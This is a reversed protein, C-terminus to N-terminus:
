TNGPAHKEPRQAQPRGGLMEQRIKRSLSWLKMHRWAWMGWLVVSGALLLGALPTLWVRESQVAYGSAFLIAGTIGAILAGLKTPQIPIVPVLRLKARLAQWRGAVAGTRPQDYLAALIVMDLRVQRPLKKIARRSLAPMLTQEGSGEDTNLFGDVLKTVAQSLIADQHDELRFSELMKDLNTKASIHFGMEGRRRQMVRDLVPNLDDYAVLMTRRDAHQENHEVVRRGILMRIATKGSGKEGFVISTSPRDIKGM